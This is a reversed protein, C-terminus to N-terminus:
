LLPAHKNFYDEEVLSKLSESIAVTEKRYNDKYPPSLVALNQRRSSGFTLGRLGLIFLSWCSFSPITKPAITRQISFVGSVSSVTVVSSSFIV